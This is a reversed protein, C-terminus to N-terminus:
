HEYLLLIIISNLYDFYYFLLTKSIQCFKPIIVKWGYEIWEVTGKDYGDPILSKGWM